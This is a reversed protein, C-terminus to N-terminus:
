MGRQTQSTQTAWALRIEAHRAEARVDPVHPADLAEARKRLEVRAGDVFVTMERLAKLFAVAFAGVQERKGIESLSANNRVAEAHLIFKTGLEEIKKYKLHLQIPPIDPWGPLPMGHIPKRIKTAFTM